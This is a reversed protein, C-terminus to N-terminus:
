SGNDHEGKSYHKAAAESIARETEREDIGDVLAAYFGCRCRLRTLRPMRSIELKHEDASRTNKM